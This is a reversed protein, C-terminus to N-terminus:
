KKIRDFIKCEMNLFSEIFEQEILEDDIKIVNNLIEFMFYDTNQSIIMKTNNIEINLNKKLYYIMGVLNDNYYGIFIDYNEKITFLFKNLEIPSYYGTELKIYPITKRKIGDFLLLNVENKLFDDVFKEYKLYPIIHYDDNLKDSLYFEVTPLFKNYSPYDIFTQKDLISIFNDFDKKLISFFLNHVLNPSTFNEFFISKNYTNLENMSLDYIDRTINADYNLFHIIDYDSIINIIDIWQKMVTYAYDYQKYEFRFNAINDYWFINYRNLVPNDSSYHYYKVKKQIESGLPYHAHILIDVNFQKLNDITENLIQIKEESNCYTTIAFCEKM